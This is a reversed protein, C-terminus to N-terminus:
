HTLIMILETSLINAIENPDRIEMLSQLKKNKRVALADVTLKKHDSVM